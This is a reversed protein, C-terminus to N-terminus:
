IKDEAYLAINRKVDGKLQIFSAMCLKLQQIQLDSINQILSGTSLVIFPELNNGMPRTQSIYKKLSTKTNYVQFLCEYVLPRHQKTKLKQELQQLTFNKIMNHFM